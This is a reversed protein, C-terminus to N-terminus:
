LIILTNNYQISPHRFTFGMVDIKRNTVDTSVRARKVLAAMHLVVDLSSFGEEGGVDGVVM